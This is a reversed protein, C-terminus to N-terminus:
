PARFGPTVPSVSNSSNEHIVKLLVLGLVLFALWRFPRGRGGEPGGEVLEDEDWRGDHM